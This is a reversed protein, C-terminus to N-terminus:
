YLKVLSFLSLFLSVPLTAIKFVKGNFGSFAILPARSFTWNGLLDWAGISSVTSNYFSDLEVEANTVTRECNQFIFSYLYLLM